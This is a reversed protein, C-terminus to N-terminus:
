EEENALEALKLLDEDTEIKRERDFIARLNELEVERIMRRLDNRSETDSM